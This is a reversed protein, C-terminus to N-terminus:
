IPPATHPSPEGPDLNSRTRSGRSAPAPRQARITMRDSGEADGSHKEHANGGASKGSPRDCQHEGIPRLQYAITAAGAEHGDKDLEKRLAVIEDEVAQSIREPSTHPRRSRPELATEGEALFRQVLTIVWRRAM